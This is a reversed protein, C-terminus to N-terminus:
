DNQNVLKRGCATCYIRPPQNEPIYKGSNTFLTLTKDCWECKDDEYSAQKPCAKCGECPEDDTDSRGYGLCKGGQWEATSCDPKLLKGCNPCFTATFELNDAKCDVRKFNGCIECGTARTSDTSHETSGMKRLATLITKRIEANYLPNDTMAEIADTIDSPLRPVYGKCGKVTEGLEPECECGICTSCLRVAEDTPKQYQYLELTNICASCLDIDEHDIEDNCLRCLKPKQYQRLAQLELDYMNLKDRRAKTGHVTCEWEIRETIDDIAEAVDADPEALACLRTPCIDGSKGTIKARSDIIWRTVRNIEELTPTESPETLAADIVTLINKTDTAPIMHGYQIAFECDSKLEKLRERDPKM